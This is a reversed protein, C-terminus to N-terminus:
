AFAPVQNKLAAESNITAPVSFFSLSKSESCVFNSNSSFYIFPQALELLPFGSGSGSGSGSFDLYGFLYFFYYEFYVWCLELLV